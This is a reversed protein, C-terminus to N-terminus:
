TRHPAIIRQGEKKAAYELAEELFKSFKEEESIERVRNREADIYRVFERRTNSVGFTEIVGMWRNEDAFGLRLPM